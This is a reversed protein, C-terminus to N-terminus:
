CAAAAQGALVQWMMRRAVLLQKDALGALLLLTMGPWGMCAFPLVGSGDGNAMKRVLRLM